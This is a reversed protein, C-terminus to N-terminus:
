EWDERNIVKDRLEEMREEEEWAAIMDSESQSMISQLESLLFLVDGGSLLDARIYTKDEGPYPKLLYDKWLIRIREAEDNNVRFWTGDKFCIRNLTM